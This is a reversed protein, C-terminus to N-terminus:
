VCEVEYHSPDFSDIFRSESGRITLMSLGIRARTMAVYLVSRQQRLYEELAEEEVRDPRYPYMQDTLYPIIVHDFELGKSSFAKVLKVGPELIDWDRRQPDIYQIRIGLEQFANRIKKVEQDSYVIIAVRKSSLDLEGLLSKIYGNQTYVNKCICLRPLAGEIEPIVAETYENDDPASHRNEKMLDEALLVIQKTSRFSKSLSKSGGGSVDMGVEKWTFSSKHIKQAADAAVTITKRALRKLLKMKGLTMDQAEDVFVHDIKKNEPIMDAHDNLYIYIQNWDILNEKKMEDLLLLYVGWILERDTRTVRVQSGRGTREAALYEEKTKICKGRIWNFEDKWFEIEKDYLRHHVMTKKQHKELVKYLLDYSIAGIETNLPLKMMNLFLNKCYSDVTRVDISNKKLQLHLLAKTYTVLTNQFTFITIKSAPYRDHAKKARSLIVYSKGSGAVGKILLDGGDYDVCREQEKTLIINGM